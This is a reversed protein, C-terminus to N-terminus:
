TNKTYTEYSVTRDYKTPYHQRKLPRVSNSLMNCLKLMIEVHYIGDAAYVTVAEQHHITLRNSVHLPNIWQLLLLFQADQQNKM